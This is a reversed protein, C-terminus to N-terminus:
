SNNNMEQQLTGLFTTGQNLRENFYGLNGGTNSATAPRFFSGRYSKSLLNGQADYTEVRVNGSSNPGTSTLQEVIKTQDPNTTTITSVGSKTTKVQVQTNNKRTVTTTTTGSNNTTSTRGPGHSARAVRGKWAATKVGRVLATNGSWLATGIKGVFGSSTRMKSGLNYAQKIGPVKNVASNFLNIGKAVTAAAGTGKAATQAWTGISSAVNYTVITLAGVAAGKVGAKLLSDGNQLSRESTAGMTSAALLLPGGYAVAVTSGVIEGATFGIKRGLSNQYAEKSGAIASGLVSAGSGVVDYEIVKKFFNAGGKWLGGLTVVNGVLTLAGDVINEGVKLVGEAAGVVGCGLQQLINLKGQENGEGNAGGPVVEEYDEIKYSNEYASYNGLSGGRINGVIGLSVGSFGSEIAALLKKGQDNYFEIKKNLEDIEKQNNEHYEDKGDITVTEAPKLSNRKSIFGLIEGILNDLTQCDDLGSILDSGVSTELRENADVLLQLLSKTGSSDSSKWASTITSLAQQYKGKSTTLDSKLTTASGKMTGINPGIESHFKALESDLEAM